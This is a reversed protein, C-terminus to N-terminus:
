MTDFGMEDALKIQALTEWYKEYETRGTWPKPMQIEYLLSIKMHVEKGIV